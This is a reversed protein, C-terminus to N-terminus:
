SNRLDNVIDTLYKSLDSLKVAAQNSCQTGEIIKSMLSHIVQTSKNIGM